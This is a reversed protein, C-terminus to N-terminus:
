LLKLHGTVEDVLSIPSPGVVLVTKTGSDVQTRGADCVICNYLKMKTAENGLQLLEDEGKCKLVVKAQGGLEWRSIAQSNSHKYSTIAAHSCQAAIKGTTMKLDSRVVLVMKYPQLGITSTIWRIANIIKIM